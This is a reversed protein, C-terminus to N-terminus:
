IHKHLDQATGHTRAAMWTSVQSGLFRRCTDCDGDPRGHEGDLGPPARLLSPPHVYQDARTQPGAGPGGPVECVERTALPANLPLVPVVSDKERRGTQSPVLEEPSTVSM